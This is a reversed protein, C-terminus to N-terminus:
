EYLYSVERFMVKLKEMVNCELFVVVDIGDGGKQAETLMVFGSYGPLQPVCAYWPHVGDFSSTYMGLRLWSTFLLDYGSTFNVGIQVAGINEQEALFTIADRLYADDLQSISERVRRALMRLTEPSITGEAQSCLEANTYTSLANFIANGAYHEPLPPNLRRRGNVCTTIKVDQGHGRARSILVTFLATIADITSVYSAECSGKGRFDGGNAMEKIRKMMKPTFHFNHIATAPPVQNPLQVNEDSAAKVIRFEPHQMKLIGEGKSLLHRDHNVVIREENTNGSYYQGWLKLFTFLAEGDFLAHSVDIGIVLGGDKLLTGKVGILEKKGRRSPMLDESRKRIAQETTMKSHLNTEFRINFAGNQRSTDTLDVHVIGTKPDIFFEGLLIPYDHKVLDVFSSYLKDLDFSVSAVPPYIVLIMVDLSHLMTDILSLPVLTKSNSPM